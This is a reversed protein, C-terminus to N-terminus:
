KGKGKDKGKWGQQYDNKRKSQEYCNKFKRIFEELLQPEDYEIQDRCALSFGSVFRQVKAKKDTLYPVYRLLELYKIMYEEDTMSGM